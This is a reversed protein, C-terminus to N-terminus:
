MFITLRYLQGYTTGTMMAAKKIMLKKQNIDRFLDAIWPEQWYNDGEYYALTVLERPKAVRDAVQKGRLVCPDCKCKTM